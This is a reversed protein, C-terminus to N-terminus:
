QLVGSEMLKGVVVGSIRDIEAQLIRQRIKLCEEMKYFYLSETIKHNMLQMTFTDEQQAVESLRMLVIDIDSM